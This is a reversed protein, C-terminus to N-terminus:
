AQGALPAVVGLPGDARAVAGDDERRGAIPVDLEVAHVAVALVDLPEGVRRPVVSPGEEVPVAALDDPPGAPGARPALELLVPRQEGLPQHPGGLELDPRRVG